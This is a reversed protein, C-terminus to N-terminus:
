INFKINKTKCLQKLGAHKHILKQINFIKDFSDTKIIKEEEKDNNIENEKLSMKIIKKNKDKKSTKNIIIIQIILKKTPLNSPLILTLEILSSQILM